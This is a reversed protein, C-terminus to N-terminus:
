LQGDTGLPDRVGVESIRGRLIIQVYESPIAFNIQTGRIGAVAVGVVKGQVDVVPGGSNGPHMGGNVQIKDLYGDRTNRLSSVTTESVTVNAGLSAGFPYGVVYLRQTERLAGGDTVPLPDPWVVGQRPPLVRLVALDSSRDVSVVQAAVTWEDPE